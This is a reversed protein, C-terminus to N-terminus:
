ICKLQEVDVEYRYVGGCAPQFMFSDALAIGNLLAYVARIVGAHTIVVVRPHQAMDNLFASVRQALQVYSEGQPPQLNVFDHAWATIAPEGIAGWAMGEWAGFDMEALRPDIQAHPALYQALVLCRQAPSTYYVAEGMDALQAKIQSAEAGFGDALPVDIHGYCVGAVAVRTHRVLILEASMGM